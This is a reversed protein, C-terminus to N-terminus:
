KNTKERRPKESLNKKKLIVFIVLVCLLGIWSTHADKKNVIKATPM